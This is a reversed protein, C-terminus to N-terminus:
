WNINTIDWMTQLWETYTGRKLSLNPELIRPRQMVPCERVDNRRLRFHVIQKLSANM